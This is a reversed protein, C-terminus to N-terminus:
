AAITGYYLLERAKKKNKPLYPNIGFKEFFLNLQLANHNITKIDTM